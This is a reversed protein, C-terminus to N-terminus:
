PRLLKFGAKDTTAVSQETHGYGDSDWGQHHHNHNKITITDAPLPLYQTSPTLPSCHLHSPLTLSQPLNPSPRTLIPHTHAPAYARRSTKCQTFHQTLNGAKDPKGKVCLLAEPM